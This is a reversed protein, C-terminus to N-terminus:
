INIIKIFYTYKLKVLLLKKYNIFYIKYKIFNNITLGQCLCIISINTIIFNSSCMFM